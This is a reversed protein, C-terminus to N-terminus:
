PIELSWPVGHSLARGAPVVTLVTGGELGVTTIVMGKYRYRVGGDECSQTVRDEHSLASVMQGTSVSSVIGIFDSDGESNKKGQRSFRHM